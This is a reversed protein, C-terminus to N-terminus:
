GESTTVFSMNVVNMFSIFSNAEKVRSRAGTGVMLNFTGSVKGGVPKAEASDKDTRAESPAHSSSSNSPSVSKIDEDRTEPSIGMGEKSASITRGEGGSVAGKGPGGLTGAVSGMGSSVKNGAGGTMVGDGSTSWTGPKSCLM